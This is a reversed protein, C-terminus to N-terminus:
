SKRNQFMVVRANSGHKVSKGHFAVVKCEHNIVRIGFVTRVQERSVNIGRKEVGFVNSEHNFIPECEQKTVQVALKQVIRSVTVTTAFQDFRIRPQGPIRKLSAFVVNLFNNSLNFFVWFAFRFLM